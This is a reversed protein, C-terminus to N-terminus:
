RQTDALQMQNRGPVPLSNSKYLAEIVTSKWPGHCVIRYPPISQM